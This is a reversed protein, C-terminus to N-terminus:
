IAPLRIADIVMTFARSPHRRRLYYAHLGPFAPCWSDMLSVLRGARVHSGGVDEPLFALGMGSLAADIMPYVSTVTVQRRVRVQIDREAVVM